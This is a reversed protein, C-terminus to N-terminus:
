RIINKYAITFATELPFCTRQEILEDIFDTLRDSNEIKDMMEREGNPSIFYMDILAISDSEGMISNAKFFGQIYSFGNNRIIQIFDKFDSIHYTQFSM